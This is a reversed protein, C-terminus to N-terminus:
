FHNTLCDLARGTRRFNVLCGSSVSLGDLLLELFNLLGNGTHVVLELVFDVAQLKHLWHTATTTISLSSCGRGLQHVHSHALDLLLVIGELFLHLLKVYLHLICQGVDLAEVLVELM